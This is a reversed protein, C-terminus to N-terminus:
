TRFQISGAGSLAAIRTQVSGNTGNWNAQTTFPEPTTLPWDALVAIPELDAVNVHIDLPTICSLGVKPSLWVPLISPGIPLLATNCTAKGSTLSSAWAFWADITGSKFPMSDNLPARFAIKSCCLMVFKSYRRGTIWAPEQGEGDLALSFNGLPPRMPRPTLREVRTDTSFSWASAETTVDWATTIVDGAPHSFSLQGGWGSENIAGDGALRWKGTRLDRVNPDISFGNLAATFDSSDNGVGWTLELSQESIADPTLRASVQEGNYDAALVWSRHAGFYSPLPIGAFESLFSLRATEINIPGIEWNAGQFGLPVDVDMQSLFGAGGTKANWTLQGSITSDSAVHPVDNLWHDTHIPWHQYTPM